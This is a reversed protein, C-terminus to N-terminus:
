WGGAAVCFCAAYTVYFKSGNHQSLLLSCDAQAKVAGVDWGSKQRWTKESHVETYASISSSELASSLSIRHPLTFTSPPACLSLSPFLLIFLLLCHCYIGHLYHWQQPGKKNNPTKTGRMMEGGGGLVFSFLSSVNLVPTPFAPLHCFAVCGAVATM